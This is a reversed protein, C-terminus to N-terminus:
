NGYLDLSALDPFWPSADGTLTSDGQRPQIAAPLQAAAKAALRRADEPVLDPSWRAILEFQRMLQEAEDIRGSKAAAAIADWAAKLEPITMWDDRRRSAEITFVLYPYPKAAGTTVKGDTKDIRIRGPNIAQKPARMILWTGTSLESWSQDMGIELTSLKSNGFLLDAGKRLPEVYPLATSLAAVGSKEALSTLLDLYPAALDSSKVSFLGLELSLEGLYPVPGLAPKNIMLIHDVNDADLERMDPAIVKQYEIPGRDGHLYHARSQVSGYFKSTGKRVNVVRSSRIRITVYEEDKVLAVPPEDMGNEATLRLILFDQGEERIIKTVAKFLGQFWSPM